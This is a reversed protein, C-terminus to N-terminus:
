PARAASAAAGDFETCARSKRRQSRRTLRERHVRGVDRRRRRGADMTMETLTMKRDRETGVPTTATSATCGCTARAATGPSLAPLAQRGPRGRPAGRHRRAAPRRPRAAPAAPPRLTQRYPRHRRRRGRRAGLRGGRRRAPGRARLGRAMEAKLGDLSQTLPEIGYDGYLEAESQFCLYQLKLIQEADQGDAASITVSMGMHAHRGDDGPMSLQPHRTRVPQRQRRHKGCCEGKNLCAIEATLMRACVDWVDPVNRALVGRHSEWSGQSRRPLHPGAPVAAGAAARPLARAAPSVADALVRRQEAALVPRRSSPTAPDAGDTDAVDAAYPVERATRRRARRAEARVASRLWGSRHHPAPTATRRAAGAACGSPRNWIRPRWAAGRAGRSRRPPSWRACHSRCNSPVAPLLALLQVSQRDPARAPAHLPPAHRDRRRWGPGRNGYPRRRWGQPHRRRRVFPSILGQRFDAAALLGTDPNDTFIGDIGTEFYAQFAGFADGYANPDTGRRFDAPLFTNENRMTYPHLVLGEAHADRVLTTPQGLSGDPTRRSSWTWPRASARRRILRDVEPGRAQGSRRGHAPRGGRRLGLPPSSPQDLLVVGPCDVLKNLRQISSPEFSQLFNPSDARHRGYARLLKALREELGLGSSASTAHPAQDRRPALGAQRAAEARSARGLAAGGRLHAGGLPRRLPHQAAPHRPHAGERAADEARRPHLGRHVLRDTAVGDVTKTTKRDPSSPTTPSMPPRRHHRERSPLRPARGQDAGPGARHRGRGHRPRAPLLRLHARPPLRQCGRHAVVAPVPLGGGSRDEAQAGSRDDALASGGTGLTAAGAAGLVAAGLVLRRGPQQEQGM